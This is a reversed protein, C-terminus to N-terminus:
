SPLKEGKEFVTKEIRNHVPPLSKLFRYIAKIEVDNMRSFAGWPMPSGKHIRGKRFRNIFTSEDWNAIVGTEKDPTLNPSLHAKGESFADPEYLNGGAFDKGIYEGTNVDMQTHCGRCNAVNYAIYRGYEVTSDITVSKPPTNKPGEPKFMGFAMLAKGLFGYDSRKVQNHVAVQTRLFSIIATLDADSMEQYPMFPSILRGDHGVGHRLIRAIEKDSLNGIGTEKDSTLNAARFTGFGPFSLEWGGQLPMELGNEVEMIKDMPVHCTACHSPSYVLYKGRAIVSPDKSAMIDPYPADFKKNWTLNVFVVLGLILVILTVLIYLIVKKM